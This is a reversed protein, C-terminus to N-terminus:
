LINEGYYQEYTRVYTHAIDYMRVYTYIGYYPSKKNSFLTFRLSTNM